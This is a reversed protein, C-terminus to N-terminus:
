LRGLSEASTTARLSREQAYNMLKITPTYSSIVWDTVIEPYSSEKDYYGASHILLLSLLGCPVWEVSSWLEGDESTKDFGLEELITGVVISSYRQLALALSSLSSTSSFIAFVLKSSIDYM